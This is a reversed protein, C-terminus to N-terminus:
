DTPGQNPFISPDWWGLVSLPTSTTPVTWPTWFTFGPDYTGSGSLDSRQMWVLVDWDDKDNYLNFDGPDDPFEVESQPLDQTRNTVPTLNSDSILELNSTGSTFVRDWDRVVMRIRAKIEYARDLCYFTYFPNVRAGGVGLFPDAALKTKTYGHPLTAEALISTDDIIEVNDPSKNAAYKEMLNPDFSKLYATDGPWTGGSFTAYDVYNLDLSALGKRYNVIDHM